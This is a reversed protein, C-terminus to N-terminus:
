TSAAAAELADEMRDNGWYLDGGATVFSPAGFIGLHEAAEVEARLGAKNEDAGAQEMVTRADAGCELLLGAHLAPDSIDAGEGFGAHFVARVYEGIWTQTRGAHAIRIALLSHQPFPVPQVLPLGLAECQREMDLWMYRGKAPMLNFPSTDWGQKKFVPGLLFPRWAIDVGLGRARAEIRMASLYSYTSGFDFWFHLVPREGGTATPTKDSM